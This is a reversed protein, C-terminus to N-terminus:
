VYRYYAKFADRVIKSVSVGREAAAESLIDVDARAMRVHVKHNKRDEGLGRDNDDERNDSCMGSGVFFKCARVLTDSRTKGSRASAYELADLDERNMRVTVLTDKRIKENGM